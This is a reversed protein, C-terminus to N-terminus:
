TRVVDREEVKLLDGVKEVQLDAMRDAIRAFMMAQGIETAGRAQYDDAIALCDQRTLDARRKFGQGPVNQPVLLDTLFEELAMKEFERVMRETKAWLWRDASIKAVESETATNPVLGLAIADDREREKRNHKQAPTERDARQREYTLQKHVEQRLASRFDILAEVRRWVWSEGRHAILADMVDEALYNGLRIHQRIAARLEAVAASM